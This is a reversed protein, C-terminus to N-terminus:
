ESFFKQAKPHLSQVLNRPHYKEKEQIPKAPQKPAPPQEAEGKKLYDQMKQLLQLQKQSYMTNGSEKQGKSKGEGEDGIWGRIYADYTPNGKENRDGNVDEWWTKHQDQRKIEQPTFSQMFQDRLGKWYPDRSMGHMLDGYIAQKLKKPDSKLEDDYIELVSKGPSPHPFEKTGEEDPNWFELGGREKLGQKSRNPDAFVVKTNDKNFNKALGLNEGLVQQLVPNPTEEEPEPKSHEEQKLPEPEPPVEPTPEAFFASATPHLLDHNIAPSGM